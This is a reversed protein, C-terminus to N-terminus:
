EHLIWSASIYLNQNLLTFSTFSSFLPYSTPLFWLIFWCLHYQLSHRSCGKLLLLYIFGEKHLQHFGWLRPSQPAVKVFLSSYPQPCGWSFHGHSKLQLDQSSDGLHVASNCGQVKSSCIKVQEPVQKAPDWQSTGQLTSPGLLAPQDLVAEQLAPISQQRTCLTSCAHCFATM